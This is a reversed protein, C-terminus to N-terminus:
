YKVYNIPLIIINDSFYIKQLSRTSLSRGGSMCVLVSPSVVFCNNYTLGRLVTILALDLFVMNLSLSVSILLLFLTSIENLASKTSIIESDTEPESYSVGVLFTYKSFVYLELM